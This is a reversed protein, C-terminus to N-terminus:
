AAAGREILVFDEATKATYHVLGAFDTNVMIGEGLYAWSDEGALYENTDMSAIVRGRYEGDIRMVDGPMIETGDSYKM